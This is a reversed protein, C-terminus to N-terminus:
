DEESVSSEFDSDSTAPSTALGEVRVKWVQETRYGGARGCVGVPEPDSIVRNVKDQHCTADCFDDYDDLRLEKECNLCFRTKTAPKGGSAAAM